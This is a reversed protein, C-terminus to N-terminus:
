ISAEPINDSIIKNLPIIIRGFVHKTSTSDILFEYHTYNHTYIIQNQSIYDMNPSYKSTHFTLSKEKQKVSIPPSFLLRYKDNDTTM